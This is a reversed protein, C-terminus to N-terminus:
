FFCRLVHWLVFIGVACIAYFGWKGIYHLYFSIQNQRAKDSAEVARLYDAESFDGFYNAPPYSTYRPVPKNYKQIIEPQM